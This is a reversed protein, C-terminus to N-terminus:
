ARNKMLIEVYFLNNECTFNSTGQYKEVRQKINEVGFGHLNKDKKTTIFKGNQTGVKKGVPNSMDIYLDDKFSRIKVDIYSIDDQNREMRLIAEVANTVLNAFIVCLDMPAIKLEAPFGGELRIMIRDKRYKSQADNLIANVIDNGTDFLEASTDAADILLKIYEEMEQLKNSKYLGNICALHNKMEHRISHIEQQKDNVLIYYKQQSEIVSQNILSLAKYNDRSEMIIIMMLCAACYSIVVIITVIIMAKRANDTVADNSRILLATLILIGTGAGAFLLAYIRKSIHVQVKSKRM